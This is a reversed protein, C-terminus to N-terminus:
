SPRRPTHRARVDQAWALSSVPACRCPDRSCDTCCANTKATHGPRSTLTAPDVSKWGRKM